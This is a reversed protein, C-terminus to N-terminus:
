GWLARRILNLGMLFFAILLVRKFTIEGIRGRIAEGVSFGLLSPILLLLSTLTIEQTLFGLRAYGFALPLSGLFILLGTARVFEDKPTERAALYIAMPPAWLSTLGGIAGAITGFTIQAPRDFRDSIRLNTHGSSTFVFLLIACGMAGYLVSAPATASSFVLVAVGFILAAGFPAYRRISRFTKGSRWVQWANMAVMPLVILSIALRPDLALTMFGIAMTPMGMGLIGKVLGAAFFSGILLALLSPDTLHM